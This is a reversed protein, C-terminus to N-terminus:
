KTKQSLDRIQQIRLEIGSHRGEVRRNTKHLTTETASSSCSFIFFQVFQNIKESSILFVDHSFFSLTNTRETKINFCNREDSIQSLELTKTCFERKFATANSYRLSKQLRGPNDQFTLDEMGELEPLWHKWHVQLYKFIM